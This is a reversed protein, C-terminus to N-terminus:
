CKIYSELSRLPIKGSGNIEIFIEEYRDDPTITYTYQGNFNGLYVDGIQDGKLQGLLYAALCGAGNFKKPIADREGNRYSIGGGTFSANGNDLIRVIDLGLCQPDGDYLRYFKLDESGPNKVIITASTGM